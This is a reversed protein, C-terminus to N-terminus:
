RTTLMKLIASKLLKPHAKSETIRRMGYNKIMINIWTNQVGPVDLLSVDYQLLQKRDRAITM